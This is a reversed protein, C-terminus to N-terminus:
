FQRATEEMAREIAARFAPAHANITTFFVSEGRQVAWDRSTARRGFIPHRWPRGSANLYWPLSRGYVPDVRSAAVTIRIGTPTAQLRTAAAVRARLSTSRDPRAVGGRSSSVEIGLWAARVASVTPEGERQVAARLSRQLDMRGRTRLEASIVRWGSPM